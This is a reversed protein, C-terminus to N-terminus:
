VYYVCQESILLSHIVIEAVKATIKIKNTTKTENHAFM